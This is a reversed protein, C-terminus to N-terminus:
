PRATRSARCGSRTRRLSTASAVHGRNEDERGDQDAQGAKGDRSCRPTSAAPTAPTGRAARTLLAPDSEQHQDGRVVLLAADRARRSAMLPPCARPPGAHEHDGVAARVRGGVIARESPASTSSRPSSSSGPRAAARWAPRSYARAGRTPRPASARHRSPSRARTRRRRRARREGVPTWATWARLSLPWPRESACSAESAANVSCPMVIGRPRSRRPMETRRRPVPM